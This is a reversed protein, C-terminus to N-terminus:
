PVIPPGIRFNVYNWMKFYKVDGMSLNRRNMEDIDLRHRSGNSWLYFSEKGVHQIYPKYASTAHLLTGDLIDPHPVHLAWAVNASIHNEPAITEVATATGWRRQQIVTLSHFLMEIWTNIPGPLCYHLCDGNLPHSDARHMTSNHVNLTLVQPYKRRLMEVIELTEQVFHSYHYPKGVDDLFNFTHGDIPPSLFYEECRPHAPPTTRFIVSVNHLHFLKELSVDVNHVREASPIIHAGSNIVIISVNLDKTRQMWSSRPNLHNDELIFSKFSPYAGCDIAVEVCQSRNKMPCYNECHFRLRDVKQKVYATDNQLAKPILVDRHMASVLTLHTQLSMSDGVFAINRGNMLECMKDPSWRHLPRRQGSPMIPEWQWINGRNFSSDYCMGWGWKSYVTNDEFFCPHWFMPEFHPDKWANEFEGHSFLVDLDQQISAWQHPTFEKHFFQINKNM